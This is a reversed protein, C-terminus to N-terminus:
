NRVLFGQSSDTVQITSCDWLGRWGASIGIVNWCPLPFMRQSRWVSGSLAAVLPTECIHSHLEVALLSVARKNLREWLLVLVGSSMCSLGSQQSCCFDTTWMVVRGFFFFFSLTKHKWLTFPQKKKCLNGPEPWQPCMDKKQKMFRRYAQCSVSQAGSRLAYWCYAWFFWYILNRM